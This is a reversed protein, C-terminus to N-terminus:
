CEGLEFEKSEESEPRKTCSLMAGGMLVYEPFIFIHMAANHNFGDIGSEGPFMCASTNDRYSSLGCEPTWWFLYVVQTAIAFCAKVFFWRATTTALRRTAWIAYANSLFIAIFVSNILVPSVTEYHEPDALMVLIVVTATVAAWRPRWYWAPPILGNERGAKNRVLLCTEYSCLISICYPLLSFARSVYQMDDSPCQVTTTEGATAKTGPCDLYFFFQHALGSMGMAVASYAFYLAFDRTGRRDTGEARRGWPRVAFAVGVAATAVLVYNTYYTSPAIDTGYIYLARQM